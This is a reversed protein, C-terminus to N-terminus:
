QVRKYDLPSDVGEQVRSKSIFEARDAAQQEDQLAKIRQTLSDLEIYSTATDLIVQDRKDATNFRTSAWDTHSARIYDRQAMNFLFQQSTVNFISPASGEISLPVGYSYGLGSGLTVQPTYMSRAEAYSEYAKQRDADAIAMTGSHRLALDIAKRFPVPQASATSACAAILVATLFRLSLASRWSNM